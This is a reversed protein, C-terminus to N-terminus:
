ELCRFDINEILLRQYQESRAAGRRRLRPLPGARRWVVTALAQWHSKGSGSRIRVRARGERPGPADLLCLYSEYLLLVYKLIRKGRLTIVTCPTSSTRPHGRPNMDFKVKFEFQEAM